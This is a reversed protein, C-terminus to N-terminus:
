ATGVEVRSAEGAPGPAPAPGDLERLDKRSTEPASWAALASVVCLLFTLGGIVLPVNTSGPPSIFAFVSPLFAVLMLGVNQSVAFGTVRHRTPFLEQFYSAFTANWLQYLVGFMLIALVVTLVVNNRGVAYLYAFSLVGASLPGVIMLPRRGVRDSLKGFYPILAVAAVNAALPLWLYTAASMGVGYAENTAYATGFVVVTTGVVNALAMLVCRVITGGSERVVQLVPTKPTADKAAEELFVPTEAVRRRIVYGAVIVVFSLLFPIRWGWTQFAQESLLASLPIFSAAALISGAQTGQLSFSAYFGRRDAPAHEVIMASAGGLEGAVAFGQVLRLLVLLAPALLGVQAYTPLLGVALTSVGMLMMALVLVNKRGHRDGWSGLVFAGLPRAVYGVAYTALSAILAVTPDESPFFVAPFVLAAAQGYIAFDYYELTSGIWGSMAAKRSMVRDHAPPGSRDRMEGHM